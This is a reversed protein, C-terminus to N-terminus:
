GGLNASQIQPLNTANPMAFAFCTGPQFGTGGAVPITLNVTGGVLINCLPTSAMGYSVIANPFYMAGNLNANAGGTISVTGATAGSRYFLVGNLGSQGTDSVQAGFNQPASPGNSFSAGSGITLNGPASGLLLFAMGTQTGDPQPCAAGTALACLFGGNDLTLTTNIFYYTGPVMTMTTGPTFPLSITQPAGSSHCYAYYPPGAQPPFNADGARGTGPVLYATPAQLDAGTPNQSICKYSATSSALTGAAVLQDVAAYPNIVPPQYAAFQRGGSAVVAANFAACNSCDGQATLGALGGTAPSGSVTIATEDIANSAIYCPIFNLDASITLDGTTSLVCATAGTNVYGVAQASVSPTASTFLSVLYPTIPVNITVQNATAVGAYNGSSPVTDTVNAFGNRNATDIAAAQAAAEIATNSAGNAAATAAGLAGAIAAADAANQARTAILYWSGGEAALAIMGLLVLGAVAFTM